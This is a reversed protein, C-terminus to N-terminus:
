CLNSSPHRRLRARQIVRQFGVTPLPNISGKEPQLPINKEFFDELASKIRLVNGGCGTIIDIGTEDHIVAFLLHEATLYEHRRIKADKIIADLTLGLEKNIM